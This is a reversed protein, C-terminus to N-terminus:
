AFILSLLTIFQTLHHRCSLMKSFKILQIKWASTRHHRASQLPTDDLFSIVSLKDAVIPEELGDNCTLSLFLLLCEFSSSSHQKRVVPVLVHCIYM